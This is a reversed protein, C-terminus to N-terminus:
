KQFMNLRVENTNWTRSQANRSNEPFNKVKHPLDQFMRGSLRCSLRPVLMHVIKVDEAVHLVSSKHNGEKGFAQTKELFHQETLTKPQHETSSVTDLSYWQTTSPL